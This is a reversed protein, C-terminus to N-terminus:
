QVGQKRCTGVTAALHRWTRRSALSGLLSLHFKNSSFSYGLIKGLHRSGRVNLSRKCAAFRRCPVASKVEEGFSPTSPIKEGQFIRRSRCPKFGRRQTSPYKTCCADELGGFGSITRHYQVTTDLPLLKFFAAFIHLMRYFTHLFNLLFSLSFRKIHDDNMCRCTCIHTAYRRKPWRRVAYV